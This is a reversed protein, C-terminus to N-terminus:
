EATESLGMDTAVTQPGLEALALPAPHPGEPASGPSCPAAPATAAVKAGPPLDGGVLDGRDGTLPKGVQGVELRQCPRVRGERTQFIRPAPLTEDGLPDGGSHRAERGENMDWTRVSLASGERSLIFCLTWLIECASRRGSPEVEPIFM